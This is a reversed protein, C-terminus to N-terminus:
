NEMYAKIYAYMQLKNLRPFKERMDDAWEEPTTDGFEIYINHFMETFKNWEREGAPTFKGYANGTKKNVEYFAVM